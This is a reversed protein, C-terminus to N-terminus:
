ICYGITMLWRFLQGLFIMCYLMIVNLLLMIIITNSRLLSVQSCLSNFVNLMFATLTSTVKYIDFLCAYFCCLVFCFCRSFLVVYDSYSFTLSRCFRCGGNSKQGDQSSWEQMLDQSSWYHRRAFYFFITVGIDPFCIEDSSKERSHWIIYERCLLNSLSCNHDEIVTIKSLSWLLTSSMEICKVPLWHFQRLNVVHNPLTAASMKTRGNRFFIWRVFLNVKSINTLSCRQISATLPKPSSETM